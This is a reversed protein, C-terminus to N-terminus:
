EILKIKFGNGIDLVTYTGWPRLEKTHALHERRKLSKLKKVVERVDQSRKKDCVLLADPTDAIILDKIGITSIFRRSRSMVCIGSSGLNFSDAQIINGSKDKPLVQELADWSGLDTWSFNAPVLAIKKSHEMVGYDVSIPRIKAWDKEIGGKTRIAMLIQHLHPLYVKLENLFVSAKWVFIGSNWYYNKNKLYKKAREIGPKELFKEVKYCDQQSSHATLQSSVKIYGYGTSAFKPKIGITVLFDRKACSVAALVDKRFKGENEIFHDAPMVVLMADHDRKYILRACLGIAPATNKGEPELIINEAPIGFKTVQKEIEFYYAQNSVIYINGAAILNGLRMITSQLLSRGKSIQMFQKPELERSFPWFRSGVGGALIIAYTM